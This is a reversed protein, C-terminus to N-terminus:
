QVNFFTYLRKPCLGEDTYFLGNKGIKRYSRTRSTGFTRFVSHEIQSIQSIVIAATEM